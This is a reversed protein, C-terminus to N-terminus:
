SLSLLVFLRTEGGSERNSDRASCSFESVSLFCLFCDMRVLVRLVYLGIQLSYLSVIYTHSQNSRHLESDLYRKGLVWPRHAVDPDFVCATSASQLVEPVSSLNM